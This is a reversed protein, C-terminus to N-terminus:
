LDGIVESEFDPLRLVWISERPGGRDIEVCRTRRIGRSRRM